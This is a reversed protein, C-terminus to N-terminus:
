MSSRHFYEDIISDTKIPASNWLSTVSSNSVRFFELRPPLNPICDRTITPNQILDLSTLMRPFHPMAADTFGKCRDLYLRTLTRPFHKASEDTLLHAHEMRCDRLHRPLHPIGGDTFHTSANAVFICLTRPLWALAKDTILTSYTLFLETLKPPLFRVFEDSLHNSDLVQLYKLGRPLLTSCTDSLSYEGNMSLHELSQPLASIFSDSITFSGDITLHTLRSLTTLYHHHPKGKFTEVVLKRLHPLTLLLDFTATRCTLVEITNPLPSTADLDLHQLTKIRRMKPPLDKLCANTLLVSKRLDLKTMTRPLNPIAADTLETADRMVLTELCPPLYPVAEDTILSQYDARIHHMGRPLEGWYGSISSNWPLKLTTLAPPLDKWMEGFDHDCRSLDLYTLDRPLDLLFDPHTQVACSISLYTLTSPVHHIGDLQSNNDLALHTLNPPLMGLGLLTLHTNSELYLETLSTPLSTLFPNGLAPNGNIHLKLLNPLRESVPFPVIHIDGDTRPSWIPDPYPDAVILEAGLFAYEANEFSVHLSELSSPLSYLDVNKVEIGSDNTGTELKFRKLTPFLSIMKPWCIRKERSFVLEFVSVGGNTLRRILNRDGSFVLNATDYATLRETILSLIEPPFVGIQGM